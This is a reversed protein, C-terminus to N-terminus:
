AKALADAIAQIQASTLKSFKGMGGFNNSIATQIMSVTAGRKSSASLAGHCSSCNDTYLAAGDLSTSSSTTSTPSSSTAAAGSLATMIAQLQESSLSAFAGMGGWNHSIANQIEAVSAGKKGSTALSGHCGSCDSAYLAAGDILTGSVTTDSTGTSGCGFLSLTLIVAGIMFLNINKNKMTQDKRSM